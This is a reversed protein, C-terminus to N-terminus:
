EKPQEKLLIANAYDGQQLCKDHGFLSTLWGKAKQSERKEQRKYVTSCHGGCIECPGYFNSNQGTGVIRRLVNM